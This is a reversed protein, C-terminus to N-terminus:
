LKSVQGTRHNPPESSLFTQWLEKVSITITRISSALSAKSLSQFVRHHIPYPDKRPMLSLGFQHRVFPSSKPILNSRHGFGLFDLVSDKYANSSSGRVTWSARCCPLHILSMRWLRVMGRRSSNKWTQSIKARLVGCSVSPTCSEITQCHVVLPSYPAFDAYWNWNM